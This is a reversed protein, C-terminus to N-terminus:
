GTSVHLRVVTGSENSRVDVLDCIQRSLWLGWGDPAMPSPPLHGALPDDLGHGTDAIECVIEGDIRWIRAEGDTNAHRFVNAAVENVALQIERIREGPLGAGAAHDEIAQRLGTLDAAGRLPQRVTPGSPQSLEDRDLTHCFIRPDEFAESASWVADTIVDPHTCVAHKVVSESLNVADYTCLISVPRDAFAVNLLSEYRTWERDAAASRGFWDAEGVVRIRHGNGNDRVYRDYSHLARVPNTYWATGDRFQVHAAVPGLAQRLLAGHANSTVALVHDGEVVGERLYGAVESTFEHDSRHLLAHHRFGANPDGDTTTQGDALM